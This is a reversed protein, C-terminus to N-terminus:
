VSRRDRRSTSTDNLKKNALKVQLWALLFVVLFIPLRSLTRAVYTHVGSWTYDAIAGTLIAVFVVGLLGLTTAHRSNLQQVLLSDLLRLAWAAFIIVLPLGLWGFNFIGEGTSSVVTSYIGDGYKEPAYFRVVEYGLAMPQGPWVFEPIVLAPVSLLNYGYSPEFGQEHLAELLLSFVNLPAIMSELGTRGDSAGAALSEQLALRDNAMWILAFPIISVIAVKLRRLPFRITYIVAVACALAVLRLRGTGSHFFETYLILTIGVLLTSWSFIRVNKRLILGAAILCIATFASAETWSRWQPMMIHVGAAAVLVVLGISVTWNTHEQNYWFARRSMEQTRHWALVITGVQATLGTVCALAVYELGADTGPQGALVFGSYGIFMATSLGFLGTATVAAHGHGLFSRVGSAISVSSTLIIVSRLHPETATLTWWWAIIVVMLWVLGELVLLRTALSKQKRASEM